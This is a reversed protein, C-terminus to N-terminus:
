SCVMSVTCLQTSEYSDQARSYFQLIEKSQLNCKIFFFAAPRVNVLSTQIACNCDSQIGCTAKEEAKKLTTAPVGIEEVVERIISDFMEQSIRNSFLEANNSDKAYQHSVIGVVKPLLGSIYLVDLKTQMFHGDKGHNYRTSAICSKVNTGLLSGM